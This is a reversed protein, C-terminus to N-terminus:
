GSRSSRCPSDGGYLEINVNKPWNKSWPTSWVSFLLPVTITGSFAVVRQVMPGSPMGFVASSGFGPRSSTRALWAKMASVLAWFWGPGSPTM